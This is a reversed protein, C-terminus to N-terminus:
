LDLNGRQPQMEVPERAPVKGDAGLPQALVPRDAHKRIIPEMGAVGHRAFVGAIYRECLHGRGDVDVVRPEQRGRPVVRIVAGCCDCFCVGRTYEVQVIPEEPEPYVADLNHADALCGQCGDRSLMTREMISAGPHDLCTNSM